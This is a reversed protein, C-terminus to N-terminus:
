RFSALTPFSAPSQVLEYTAQAVAIAFDEGSVVTAIDQKINALTTPDNLDFTQMITDGQARQPTTAGPLYQARWTARATIDVIVVGVIPIGADRLARELVENPPIQIPM